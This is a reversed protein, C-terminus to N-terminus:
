YVQDHSGIDIFVADNNDTFYFVVRQDYEITFSWLDKLKGSLKHTKLSPEFPNKQFQELKDRFKKELTKNGKIRKKFARKFSNDFSIKIM